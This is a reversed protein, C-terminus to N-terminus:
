YYLAPRFCCCLIMISLAFSLVTDVVFLVPLHCRCIVCINALLVVADIFRAKPLSLILYKEVSGAALPFELSNVPGKGLM